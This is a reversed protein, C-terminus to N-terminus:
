RQSHLRAQGRAMAAEVHAADLFHARRSCVAADALLTARSPPALRPMAAPAGNGGSLRAAAAEGEVVAAYLRPDHLAAAVDSWAHADRPSRLLAAKFAAAAELLAGGEWMAHGQATHRTSFPDQLRYGPLVLAAKWATGSGQGGSGQGSTAAAATAAAAASSPASRPFDFALVELKFRALLAEAGGGAAVAATRGATGSVTARHAFLVLSGTAWAFFAVFLASVLHDATLVDDFLREQLSRILREARNRPTQSSRQTKM